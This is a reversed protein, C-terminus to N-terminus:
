EGPRKWVRVYDVIFEAPFKTKADPPGPWNGGVALNILLYMPVSPIADKEEFTWVTKGDLYWRISDKDWTLGYVHWGKTL